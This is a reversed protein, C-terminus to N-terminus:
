SQHFEKLKSSSIVDVTLEGDTPVQVAINYSGNANPTITYSDDPHHIITYANYFSLNLYFADTPEEVRGLAIIVPTQPEDDAVRAVFTCHQNAEVMISVSYRYFRTTGLGREHATKLDRLERTIEKLKNALEDDTM